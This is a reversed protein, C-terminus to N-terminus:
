LLEPVTRVASYLLALHRCFHETKFSKYFLSSISGHDMSTLELVRVNVCLLKFNTGLGALALAANRLPLSLNLKFMKLTNVRHRVM